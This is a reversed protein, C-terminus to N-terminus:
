NAYVSDSSDPACYIKTGDRKTHTRYHASLVYYYGKDAKSMYKTLGPNPGRVNEVHWVYDWNMLDRSRYISITRKECPRKETSFGGYLFPQAVGMSDTQYGLWANTDSTIAASASAPLLAAAGAVGAILALLRAKRPARPRTITTTM